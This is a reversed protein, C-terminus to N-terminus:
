FCSLEFDDVRLEGNAFVMNVKIQYRVVDGEASVAKVNTVQGFGGGNQVSREHFTERIRATFSPEQADNPEFLVDASFVGAMSYHSDDFGTVHFTERYEITATGTLGGLCPGQFPVVTTGSHVDTFVDAPPGGHASAPAAALAVTGALMAVIVLLKKM